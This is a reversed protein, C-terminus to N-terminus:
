YVHVPLPVGDPGVLLSWTEGAAVEFERRQAENGPVKFTVKFRGPPLDIEPARPFEAKASLRITQDNIAVVADEDTTNGLMLKVQGPSPLMEAKVVADPKRLSLDAITRDGHHSLRLLAPGEATTFAIVARDPAVDAGENESWGRKGLEARYFGLVDALDRPMEVHVSTILPSNKETTLLRGKPLPLGTALSLEVELDDRAPKEAEGCLLRRAFPGLPCHNTVDWATEEIVGSMFPAREGDPPPTSPKSTTTRHSQYTCGILLSGLGIRCGHLDFLSALAAAPLVLTTTVGAVALGAVLLVIRIRRNM